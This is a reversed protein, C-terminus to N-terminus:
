LKVVEVIPGDKKGFTKRINPWGFFDTPASYTAVFGTTRDEYRFIKVRRLRYFRFPISYELTYPMTEEFGDFSLADEDDCVPDTEPLEEPNQNDGFKSENGCTADEPCFLETKFRCTAKVDYATLRVILRPFDVDEEDFEDNSTITVKSGDFTVYPEEGKLTYTRDGCYSVGDLNGYHSSILDKVVIDQELSGSNIALRMDEIQDKLM